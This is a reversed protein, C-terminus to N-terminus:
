ANPLGKLFSNLMEISDIVVVTFGLCELIRIARYQLKTPKKGTSKLEVFRVFGGPLLVIRDPLGGFFPNYFKIALGGLKKVESRLRKEILKESDM